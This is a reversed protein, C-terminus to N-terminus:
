HPNVDEDPQGTLITGLRQGILVSRRQAKLGLGLDHAPRHTLPGKVATSNVRNTSVKINGPSSPTPNRSRTM